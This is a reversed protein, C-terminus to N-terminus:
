SLGRVLRSTEEVQRDMGRCANAAPDCVCGGPNGYCGGEIHLARAGGRHWEPSSLGESFISPGQRRALAERQNGARISVRALLRYNQHSRIATPHLVVEHQSTKSSGDDNPRPTMSASPHHQTPPFRGTSHARKNAQHRRFLVDPNSPSRNAIPESTKPPHFMLIAHQFQAAIPTHKGCAQFGATCGAGSM